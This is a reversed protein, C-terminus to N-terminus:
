HNQLHAPLSTVSSWKLLEMRQPTIFVNSSTTPTVQSLDNLDIREEKKNVSASYIDIVSDKEWIKEKKALDGWIDVYIVIGKSDVIKTKRYARGNGDIKFKSDIAVLCPWLSIRDYEQLNIINTFGQRKMTQQRLYTHKGEDTEVHFNDM